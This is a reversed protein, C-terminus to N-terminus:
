ERTLKELVTQTFPKGKPQMAARVRTSIGDPDGSAVLEALYDDIAKKRPEMFLDYTDEGLAERLAGKDYTMKQVNSVRFQYGDIEDSRGNSGIYKPLQQKLKEKLAKGAKEYDTAIQWSKMVDTFTEDALEIVEGTQKITETIM